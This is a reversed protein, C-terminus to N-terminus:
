YIAEASCNEYFFGLIEEATWGALAMERAANQSMGVGHGHGGGILTYGVVNKGETGPIMVFFASPLLSPCSGSKGNWLIAATEGDCLVKRIANEGSVTYIGKDTEVTLEDAIGGTGRKTIHLSLIKKFKTVEQDANKELRTRFAEVDLDRAQYIWRYWGQGFEFDATNRTLLFEAGLLNLDPASMESFSGGSQGANGGEGTSGNQGSSGGNKGADMGDEGDSSGSGEGTQGGSATGTDQELLLGLDVGSDGGAEGLLPLWWLGDEEGRKEGSNEADSCIQKGPLYDIKQAAETKWVKADTGRGCSTSYYFTEATLGAGTRLIQGCTAKVANIASEQEAQNNYVQYSTSDDVHAGYLPYGAHQMRGYAYTRACIAQAKLAEMPYSAPMESPVVAYLYEELPLVNVATLGQETCRIELKGRYGPTGSSRELNNIYLKGTLASPVAELIMDGDGSFSGADIVCIEGPGYNVAGEGAGAQSGAGKSASSQSAGLRSVTFEVDSTIELKGHFMEEFNSTKLLVRITEMAEEGAFLIACIRNEFLVFDAFDYGIILESVTKMAPEGYLRYGRYDPDLELRGYGALEVFDKGVREVTGHIKESKLLIETVVGDTLTIDAIQDRLSDGSVSNLAQTVGTGTVGSGEALAGMGTMSSGEALAGTGTMGSEEALVGTGKDPDGTGQPEQEDVTKQGSVNLGGISLSESLPYKRNEGEAFVTLTGATGEQIWVNHITKLVPPMEPNEQEEPEGSFIETVLKAIFLILLLLIALICILGKLQTRQNKTM